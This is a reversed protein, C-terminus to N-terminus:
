GTLRRAGCRPLHKRVLLLFNVISRTDLWSSYINRRESRPGGKKDNWMAEKEENKMRNEQEKGRHISGSPLTSSSPIAHWVPNTLYPVILNVDRSTIVHCLPVLVHTLIPCTCPYQNLIHMLRRVYHYVSHKFINTLM